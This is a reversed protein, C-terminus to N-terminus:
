SQRKKAQIEHEKRLFEWRYYRFIVQASIEPMCLGPNLCCYFSPNKEVVHHERRDKLKSRLILIRQSLIGPFSWALFLYAKLYSFVLDRKGKKVLSFFNKVDEKLYNKLFGLLIRGQFIKLVLRLRNRVVLVLKERELYSAGFKHYVVALPAPVIKWGRLWCRFSWDADEYFSRYGEDVTGVEDLADRSLFVAGFCASPVQKLEEFQGVDVCYIFNDTGWGHNNIQNGIGNLFGRLNFLKLMPVVAGIKEDSKMKLYLHFLCDKELETDQNLIFVYKGQAKKLGYNIGGAYHRNKELPFLRVGPFNKQILSVTEDKSANDVAIVEVHPYTQARLSEFCGQVHDKGNHTIVIVSILDTSDTESYPHISGKQQFFTGGSSDLKVIGACLFIFLYENIMRGSIVGEAQDQCVKKKIEGATGPLAEWIIKGWKDTLVKDRSRHVFLYSHPLYSPLLRSLLRRDTLLHFDDNPVLRERENFDPAHVSKRSDAAHGKIEM